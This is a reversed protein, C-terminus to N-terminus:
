NKPYEIRAHYINLLLEKFLDKLITIEKFTINAEEFQKVEMQYNIINDVLKSISDRNIEKLSRSAAEISDAMMLIATEKSFPRPGPYTFKDIEDKKEPYKKIYNKYFYQVTTTGHHTRIFDIIVQPLKHKSAISIGQTVHNLIVQASQDFAIQDHPNFGTVQNEIFFAPATTKGIDHYLAGVRVLMSNAGIKNAAAEVLNAVQLSHQFTGPATTSLKQLLPHNTTSLELLTIDSIFGFIKEFAFILPYASLLLLSCLAFYLFYVWNINVINGEQVIAIGFYMLSMAVFVSTASIYLQGRRTFQSIGFIASFGAIFQIVVFEFGNPVIFGLLSISIILVFLALKDDFFTKLILPLLAIPFIYINFISLRVILVSLGVFIIILIYILLLASIDDFIEKKNTKIYLALIFILLFVVIADGLQILLLSNKDTTQEYNNKLSKLIRYKDTTIIEGRAIVLEGAQMFGRTKSINYLALEKIKNTKDKDFNLNKTVYKDFGINKFFKLYEDKNPSNEISKNFNNFIYEYGTKLTFIQNRSYTKVLNNKIFVLKYDTVDTYNIVESPDYTGVKYIYNISSIINKLYIKYSNKNPLPKYKYTPDNIRKLSDEKLLLQWHNEFDDRIKQSQNEEVGVDYNFYLMVNNNISDVELQIEEDLKAISFDFPAFLDEHQWPTGRQFEFRFKRESPFSLFIILFTFFFILTRLVKTKNKIYFESWM